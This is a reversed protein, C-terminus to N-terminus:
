QKRGMQDEIAKREHKELKDWAPISRGVNKEDQFRVWEPINERAWELWGAPGEGAKTANDPSTLTLIKRDAKKLWNVIHRRTTQVPPTQNRWHFRCKAIEKDIEVGQLFPDAKLSEIWEQDALIKPKRKTKRADHWVKHCREAADEWMAATVEVKSDTKFANM